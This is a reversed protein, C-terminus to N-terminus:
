NEREKKSIKNDYNIKIENDNDNSQSKDKKLGFIFYKLYFFINKQFEYIFM